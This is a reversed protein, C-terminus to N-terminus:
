FLEFTFGLTHSPLIGQSTFHTIVMLYQLLLYFSPTFFQGMGEFTPQPM